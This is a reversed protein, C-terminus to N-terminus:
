VRLQLPQRAFPQEPRVEIEVPRGQVDDQDIDRRKQELGSEGSVQALRQQAVSPQFPHPLGRSIEEQPADVARLGAASRGAPIPMRPSTRSWVISSQYRMMSTFRRPTTLPTAAAYRTISACPNPWM